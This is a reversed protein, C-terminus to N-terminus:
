QTTREESAFDWLLSFHYQPAIWISREMKWKVLRIQLMAKASEGEGLNSADGLVWIERSLSEDEPEGGGERLRSVLGVSVVVELARVVGVQKVWGVSGERGRREM